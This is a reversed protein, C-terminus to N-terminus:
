LLIIIIVQTQISSTQFNVNYVNLSIKYCSIVYIYKIQNSNQFIEQFLENLNNIYQILNRGLLFMKQPISKVLM